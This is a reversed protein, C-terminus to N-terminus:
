MDSERNCSCAHSDLAARFGGAAAAVDQEVREHSQALAYGPGPRPVRGREDQGGCPRPGAHARRPAARGRCGEAAACVRGGSGAGAAPAGSGMAHYDRAYVLGRPARARAAADGRCGHADLKHQRTGLGASRCAAARRAAATGRARSRGVPCVGDDTWVRPRARVLHRFLPAAQRRRVTRRLNTGLLQPSNRGESARCSTRARQWM